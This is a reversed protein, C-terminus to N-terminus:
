TRLIPCTNDDRQNCSSVTFDIAFLGMATLSNNDELLGAPPVPAALGLLEDGRAYTFALIHETRNIGGDWSHIGGGKVSVLVGYSHVRSLTVMQTFAPGPFQSGGEKSSVTLLRKLSFSGGVGASLVYLGACRCQPNKEGDWTLVFAASEDIPNFGGLSSTTWRRNQM